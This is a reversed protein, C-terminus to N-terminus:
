TSLRRFLLHQRWSRASRDPALSTTTFTPEASSTSPALPAAAGRSAPTARRRHPPAARAPRSLSEPKTRRWRAPAARQQFQCRACKRSSSLWAAAAAPCTRSARLRHRYAPRGRIDDRRLNQQGQAVGFLAAAIEIGAGRQVGQESRPATGTILSFSVTAVASIRKPSLSRSPARTAEM